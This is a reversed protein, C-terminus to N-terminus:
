DRGGAPLRERIAPNSALVLSSTAGREPKPQKPKKQERNSRRQGKAM